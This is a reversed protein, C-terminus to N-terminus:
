CAWVSVPSKWYVKALLGYLRTAIKKFYGFLVHRLFIKLNERVERLLVVLNMLFGLMKVTIESQSSIESM